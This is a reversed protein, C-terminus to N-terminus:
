DSQAGRGTISRLTPGALKEALAADATAFFLTVEFARGNGTLVYVHKSRGDGDEDLWSFSAKHGAARPLRVEEVPGQELDSINDL